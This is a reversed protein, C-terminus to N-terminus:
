APALTALVCLVIRTSSGWSVRVRLSASPPCFICVVRMVSLRRSPRPRQSAGDRRLLLLGCQLAHELPGLRVCVDLFLVVLSHLVGKRALLALRPLELALVLFQCDRVRSRPSLSLIRGHRV